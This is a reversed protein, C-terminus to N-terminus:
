LSVMPALPGFADAPTDTAYALYSWAAVYEESQNHGEAVRPTDPFSM